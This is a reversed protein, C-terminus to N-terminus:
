FSEREVEISVARCLAALAEGEVWRLVGGDLTSLGAVPARAGLDGADCRRNGNRDQVLVVAETPYDRGPMVWALSLTGRTVRGARVQAAIPREQAVLGAYVQAGEFARDIGQLQVERTRDSLAAVAAEAQALTPTQGLVRSTDEDHVIAYRQSFLARAVERGTVGTTGPAFVVAAVQPYSNGGRPICVCAEFGGDRVVTRAIAVGHPVDLGRDAERLYRVAFHARAGELGELNQAFGRVL